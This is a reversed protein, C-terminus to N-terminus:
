GSRCRELGRIESTGKLRWKWQKRPYPCFCDKLYTRSRGIQITSRVPQAEHSIQKLWDSATGMDPNHHMMLIFIRRENRLSWKAPLSNITECFTVDAEKRLTFYYTLKTMNSLVRKGEGKPCFLCLIRSLIVLYCWHCFKYRWHWANEEQRLSNIKRLELFYCEVM